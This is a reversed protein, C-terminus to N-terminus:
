PAYTTTMDVRADNEDAGVMTATQRTLNVKGTVSRINGEDAPLGTDNDIELEEVVLSIRNGRNIMLAGELNYSVGNGDLAYVNPLPVVAVCDNPNPPLPKDLCATFIGLLDFFETSRVRNKLVRATWSFGTLDTLTAAPLGSFVMTGNNSAARMAIKARPPSHVTATFSTIDLPVAKSGGDFFGIVRGIADFHWQGDVLFFGFNLSVPPLPLHPRIIMYGFLTGGTGSGDDFFEMYGSGFVADGAVALDWFTGVPSVQAYAASGLSCFLLVAVCGTLGWLKAKTFM